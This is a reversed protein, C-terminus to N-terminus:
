LFYASFAYMMSFLFCCLKNIETYQMYGMVYLGYPLASNAGNQPETILSNVLIVFYQPMAKNASIKACPSGLNSHNLEPLYSFHLGIAFSCYFILALITYMIRIYEIEAGVASTVVLFKCCQYESLYSTINQMMIDVTKMLFTYSM